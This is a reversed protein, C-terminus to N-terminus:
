VCVQAFDVVLASDCVLQRVSKWRSLVSSQQRRIFRSTLSALRQVAAHRRFDRFELKM